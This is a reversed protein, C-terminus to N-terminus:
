QSYAKLPKPNNFKAIQKSVYKMWTNYDSGTYGKPVVPQNTSTRKM